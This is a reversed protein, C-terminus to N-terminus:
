NTQIVIAAEGDIIEAQIRRVELDPYRNVIYEHAGSDYEDVKGYAFKWLVTIQLPEGRQNYLVDELDKIKM